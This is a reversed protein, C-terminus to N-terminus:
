AVEQMIGIVTGQYDFVFLNKVRSNLLHRHKGHVILKNNYLMFLVFFFVEMWFVEVLYEITM